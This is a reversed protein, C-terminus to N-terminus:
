RAQRALYWTDCSVSESRVGCPVTPDAVFDLVAMPVELPDKLFAGVWRVTVLQLAFGLKM